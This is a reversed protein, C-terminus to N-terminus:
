LNVFRTDPVFEDVKSLAYRTDLVFEDIKSLFERRFNPYLFFYGFFLYPASGRSIM